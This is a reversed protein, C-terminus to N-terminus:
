YRRNRDPFVIWPKKPFHVGSPTEKIEWPIRFVAIALSDVLNDGSRKHPRYKVLESYLKLFHPKPIIIEGTRISTQLQTLLDEKYLRSEVAVLKPYYSKLTDFLEKPMSDCKVIKANYEKCVKTIEEANFRKWTQQYIIKIKNSSRRKEVITLATVNPLGYGLDIGIELWSDPRGEKHAECEIFVKDLMKKSFYSRESKSPIRAQVERAYAEPTLTTKLRQISKSMWPVIESSYQKLIYNYKEPNTIVEIFYSTDVSPTSILIVKNIDGSVVPLAADKIVEDKILCVEDIILIDCRNGRIRRNTPLVTEITSRNQLMLGERPIDKILGSQVLKDRLDKNNHFINDLNTYLSEQGSILLVQIPRGIEESYVDAYWLATVACLLSKSYGRGCCLVLNEISIDQMAKLIEIQSEIPTFKTIRSFYSVLDEM